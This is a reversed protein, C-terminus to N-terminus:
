TFSATIMFTFYSKLMNNFKEMFPILRDNMPFSLMAMLSYQM